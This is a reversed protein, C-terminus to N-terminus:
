HVPTITTLVKADDPYVVPQGYAYNNAQNPWGVFSRTSYTYWLAATMVPIFPMNDLQIKQLKDIFAHQTKLDTTERFKILLATAEPSWWRSYNNMGHITADQGTPTYSEKSMYDLFFDYPTFGSNTWYIEAQLLGKNAKDYFSNEDIPKYSADIGIDKFNQVLIRMALIWDSFSSPDQIQFSVRNGKPDYLQGGKYKFGAQILTLKAKAPNYTTMENAAPVLSKDVWTPFQDQIGLANVPPEYGNEAILDIKKRDIAYSLAKRFGVLSYPYKENNFFLGNPPQATDYFYHFHQPDRATYVQQINPVFNDTWDLDGHVMAIDASTNGTYAPKGPQWYYPNKGLVFGQSSFNLVQTFPGTGVPNPNTYTDAGKIKAWIHEPVIKVGSLVQSVDATNVTAFHVAVQDSGVLNVSTTKGNTLGIQDVAANTKGMNFTFLVDKATFPLGDSWRVGHRITILLTKNGDTFKYGTALWPYIHGGGAPSMIVLPEYIGGNTFDNPTALFPNFNRTLVTHFNQIAHLYKPAAKPAAAHVQHSPAPILTLVLAMAGLAAPALHRPTTRTLM